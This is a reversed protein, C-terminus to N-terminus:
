EKDPQSEGRKKALEIAMISGLHLNFLSQVPEVVFRNLAIDGRDAIDTTAGNDVKCDMSLDVGNEKVKMKQQESLPEAVCQKHLLVLYALNDKVLEIKEMTQQSNYIGGARVEMANVDTLIGEYFARQKLYKIDEINANQLSIFYGDLKKQLQQAQNDITEDYKSILTMTSCGSAFIMAAAFAHFLPIRLKKLLM